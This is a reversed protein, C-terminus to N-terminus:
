KNLISNTPTFASLSHATSGSNYMNFAQPSNFLPTKGLLNGFNHSLRPSINFNFFNVEPDKSQNSM